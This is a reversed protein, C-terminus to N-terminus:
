FLNKLEMDELRLSLNFNNEHTSKFSFLWVRSFQLPIQAGYILNDSDYRKIRERHKYVNMCFHCVVAKFM